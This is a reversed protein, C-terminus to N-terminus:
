AILVEERVHDLEYLMDPAIDICKSPDRDGSLDWALTGNLITCNNMYFAQDKLPHFAEKELLPRVDYCVIKGDEFYVYVHYDETPYVQVLEPLM